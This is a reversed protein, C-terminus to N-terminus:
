LILYLFYLYDMSEYFIFYNSIIQMLSWIKENYNVDYVFIMFVSRM